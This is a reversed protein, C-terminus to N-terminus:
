RGGTNERSRRSGTARPSRTQAEPPAQGAAPQEEAAVSAAPGAPPPYFAVIRRGPLRLLDNEALDVYQVAVEAGCAVILESAQMQRLRQWSDLPYPQSWVMRVGLATLVACADELRHWILRGLNVSGPPAPWCEPSIPRRYPPVADIAVVHCRRVGRHEAVRLWVRALPVGPRDRCGFCDCSLFANREDQAMWFLIQLQTDRDMLEELREDPIDCLLDRLFCFHHLPHRDIWDVLWDRVDRGSRRASEVWGIFRDVVVLSAQYAEWWRRAADTAPDGAQDAPYPKVEFSERTRTHDCASGQACGGRGLAVQPDSPEERYRIYLDVARAADASGNEERKTDDSRSRQGPRVDACPETEDRCQTSLDVVTEECVVIDDGCCSVAYGPAVIVTGGHTPDCRIDLGCVVGWGHRYRTLRFKDRTWSLMQTLDQDTLLQGCFFHPRVLCELACCETACPACGCPCPQMAPEAGSTSVTVSRTTM